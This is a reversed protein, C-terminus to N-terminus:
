VDRGGGGEHRPLPYGLHREGNDSIDFPNRLLGEVRQRFRGLITARDRLCYSSVDLYREVGREALRRDM